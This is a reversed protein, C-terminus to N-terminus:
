AHIQARLPDELANRVQADNVLVGPVVRLCSKGVNAFAAAGIQWRGRKQSFRRACPISVPFTNQPQQPPVMALM